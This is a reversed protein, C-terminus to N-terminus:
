GEGCARLDAQGEHTGLKAQVGDCAGLEARGRRNARLDAQGERVGLEAQDKRIGWNLRVAKEM